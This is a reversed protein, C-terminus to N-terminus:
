SCSGWAALLIALDTANVEGDANLDTGPSKAGDTGWFCLLVAIDAADVFGNRDLDGDCTARCTSRFVVVEHTGAGVIYRDGGKAPDAWITQLPHPSAAVLELTSPGGFNGYGDNLLAAMRHPGSQSVLIMDEFGDGNADFSDTVQYPASIAIPTWAFNTGAWRGLRITQSIGNGVYVAVDELDDELPNANISIGAAAREAAFNVLAPQFTGNGNGRYLYMGWQNDAWGSKHLSVFDAHGDGDYDKVHTYYLDRPWQFSAQVAFSRNGDNRFTRSNGWMSTMIVDLDGDGDFDIERAYVCYPNAPLPLQTYVGSSFPANGGENWYIRILNGLCNTGTVSNSLLDIRGDGDFDNISMLHGHPPLQFSTWWSFGEGDNRYIRCLRSADVSVLDLHGDGDLDAMQYHEGNTRPAAHYPDFGVICPDPPDAHAVTAIALIAAARRLVGMPRFAESPDSAQPCPMHM